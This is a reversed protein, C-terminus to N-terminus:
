GIGGLVAGAVLAVFALPVLIYKGLPIFWAGIQKQRGRNVADLAFDKGAVWFFM